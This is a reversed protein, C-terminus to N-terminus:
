KRRPPPPPPPAPRSDWVDDVIRRNVIRKRTWIEKAAARDAAIMRRAREYLLHSDNIPKKKPETKWIERIQNEFRMHTRKLRMSKRYEQVVKIRKPAYIYHYHFWRLWDMLM